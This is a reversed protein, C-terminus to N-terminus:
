SPTPLGLLPSLGLGLYLGGGPGIQPAARNPYSQESMQRAPALLPPGVEERCLIGNKLARRGGIRRSFLPQSLHVDAWRSIPACATYGKGTM